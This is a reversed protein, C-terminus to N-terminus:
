LSPPATVIANCSRIELSLCVPDIRSAAAAYSSSPQGPEISPGHISAFHRPARLRTLPHPDVHEAGRAVSAACVCVCMTEEYVFEQAVYAVVFVCVCVCVCLSSCLCACVCM